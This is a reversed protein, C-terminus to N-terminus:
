PLCCRRIAQKSVQIGAETCTVCARRLGGKRVPVSKDRDTTTYAQIPPRLCQCRSGPIDKQELASSFPAQKFAGGSVAGYVFCLGPGHIRCFAMPAYATPPLQEFVPLQEQALHLATGRSRIARSYSRIWHGAVSFCVCRNM